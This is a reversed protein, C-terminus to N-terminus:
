GSRKFLAIIAAVVSLVGATAGIADWPLSASSSSFDPAPVINGGSDSSAISDGRSPGEKEIAVELKIDATWKVVWPNTEYRAYVVAGETAKFKVVRSDLNPGVVPILRASIINEGNAGPAFRFKETKGNSVSGIKVKNVFVDVTCIVCSLSSIREFRLVVHRSDLESERHAIYVGLGVGFTLLM